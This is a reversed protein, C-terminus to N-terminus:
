YSETAQTSLICGIDVCYGVKTPRLSSSVADVKYLLQFELFLWKMKLVPSMTLLPTPCLTLLVSMVQWNIFAAAFRHCPQKNCRSANASITGWPDDWNELARSPTMPWTWTMWSTTLIAQKMESTNWFSGKSSTAPHSQRCECNM